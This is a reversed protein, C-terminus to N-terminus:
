NKFRDEVCQHCKQFDKRNHTPDMFLPFLRRHRVLYIQLKPQPLPHQLRRGNGLPFRHYQRRIQEQPIKRMLNRSLGHSNQDQLWQKIKKHGIKFKGETKVLRHLKDPGAYSAPHKHDYWIRKLYEQYNSQNM